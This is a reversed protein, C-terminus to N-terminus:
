SGVAPRERRMVLRIDAKRIAGVAFLLAPYAIVAVALAPLVPASGMRLTLMVGLLVVAALAVRVLRGSAPRVPLHRRVILWRLAVVLGETVATISAAAMFGWAPILALNLGLNCILALAAIGVFAKQRGTIIVLSDLLYGLSVLVFAGMLIPLAPAARSFDSGYLLTTIPGSYAAAIVLGGISVALLLELSTQLLARFRAVDATFSAALLPFVTTSISVPAFSSQDFIRYAAGYLGADRSGALEFVLIQDIRAYGLVLLGGIAVPAGVHLLDSCYPRIGTFRIRTKRLAVVATLLSTAATVVTSGCALALLGGRWHFVVLVVAGWAISQLSVIAITVRNQVRVQFVIRLTSLTGTLMPMALILGAVLMERSKAVGAIVSATVILSALSFVGKLGLLAGLWEAELEPKASIRRVAVQEFGLDSTAGLLGIIALLTAWTGFGSDGLTRALLATVVVGLALNAFRGVIQVGIDWSIRRADVQGSGSNGGAGLALSQEGARVDSKTEIEHNTEPM